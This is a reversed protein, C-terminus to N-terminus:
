TSGKLTRAIRDWAERDVNKLGDLTLLHERELPRAKFNPQAVLQDLAEVTLRRIERIQVRGQRRARDVRAAGTALVMTLLGGIWAFRLAKEQEAPAVLQHYVLCGATYIVGVAVLVWQVWLTGRADTQEYGIRLIALASRGQGEGVLFRYREAVEAVTMGPYRGYGGGTGDQSPDLRSEIM